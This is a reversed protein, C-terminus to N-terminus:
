LPTLALMAKGQDSAPDIGARKLSDMMQQRATTTTLAILAQWQEPTPAAGAPNSFLAVIAQITGPGYQLAYQLILAIIAPSM